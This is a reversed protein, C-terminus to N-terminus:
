HAGKPRDPEIRRLACAAPCNSGLSNRAQHIGTLLAYGAAAAAIPLDHEDDRRLQEAGQGVPV